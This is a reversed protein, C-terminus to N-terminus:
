DQSRQKAARPETGLAPPVLPQPPWHPALSGQVQPRSLFVAAFPSPRAESAMHGRPSQVQSGSGTRRPCSLVTAGLLAAELVRPELWSDAKQVLAKSWPPYLGGGALPQKRSPTPPQAATTGAAPTPAVARVEAEKCGAADQHQASVEHLIGAEPEEADDRQLHAPRGGTVRSLASGRPCLGRASLGM